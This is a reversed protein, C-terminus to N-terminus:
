KILAANESTSLWDLCQQTTMLHVGINEMEQLGREYIGSIGDTVMAIRFDRMSACYVTARPCNPFKCGAIVVTNVELNRLHTELSTQYFGDWRPKYMIWERQGIRQLQSALLTDADLRVNPTPKLENVLEAGTSGPSVIKKGQEIIQRRSADVNSGDRLYLRVVHIIPRDYKRYAELLRKMQDVKEMTGPIQAIAGPLTFDQQVDISLLASKDKEPTTYDM